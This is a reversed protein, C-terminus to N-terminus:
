LLERMDQQILRTKKKHTKNIQTPVRRRNRRTIYVSQHRTSTTHWQQQYKYEKLLTKRTGSYTEYQKAAADISACWKELQRTSKQLRTTLLMKFLWHHQPAVMGPGERYLEKACTKARARWKRNKEIANNGHILDHRNQWLSLGYQIVCGM